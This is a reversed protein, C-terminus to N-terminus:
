KVRTNLLDMLSVHKINRSIYDKDRLLCDTLMDLKAEIKKIKTLNPTKASKEAQLRLNWNQWNRIIGELSEKKYTEYHPTEVYPLQNESYRPMILDDSSCSVDQDEKNWYKQKVALPKHFSQAEWADLEKNDPTYTM